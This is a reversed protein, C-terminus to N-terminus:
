QTTNLTFLGQYKKAASVLEAPSDAKSVGKSMAGAAIKIVVPYTFENASVKLEELTGFVKTKISHIPKYGSRDRLLEM